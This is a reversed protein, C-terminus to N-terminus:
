EDDSRQRNRERVDIIFRSWLPDIDASTYYVKKFASKPVERIVEDNKKQLSSVELRLKAVEKLKLARDESLAILKDQNELYARQLEDVRTQNRRTQYFIGGWFALAAIVVVPLLIQACRKYDIEYDSLNFQM